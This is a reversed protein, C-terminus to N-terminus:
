NSMLGCSMLEIGQCVMEIYHNDPQWPCAAAEQFYRTLNKGPVSSKGYSAEEYTKKDHRVVLLDDKGQVVFFHGRSWVRKVEMQIAFIKCANEFLELRRSYNMTQTAEVTPAKSERYKIM